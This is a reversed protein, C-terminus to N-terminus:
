YEDDGLDGQYSNIYIVINQEMPDKDLDIKTAYKPEQGIVTGYPKNPNSKEQVQIKHYAFGQRTLTAIATELTMGELNPVEYLAIEITVEEEASIKAGYSPKQGTVTGPVKGSENSGVVKINQYLFGAKLLEMKATDKDKGMLNPMRVEKPGLSITIEIVTNYAAREGAAVSQKCIMGREYQDNYEKGAIKVQFKELSTEEDLQTYYKGKIDPVEYLPGSPESSEKSSDEPESSEESSVASSTEEAKKGGKKFVTLTLAGIIILFILATSLASVIAYKAASGKKKPSKASTQETRPSAVSAKASATNKAATEAYVLENKFTEVNATRKAPDIQLGNALAHLVHRPLEEVFKAPVSIADGAARETSTPPVKGILVCYLVASLAYVDTRSSLGSGRYQETAAFGDFLEARIGSNQKRLKEIDYGTIRLKGDRGVLLTEPSIGGHVVDEDNMGKITDILPLFLPRAQEWKLVGGNKALFERLTISPTYQEIAYATGNVEFVDKVAVLAPLSIGKLRRNIRSFELLSENYTYQSNPLSSVTYDPNRVAIQAPFFERITIPKEESRDWGLYTVGSGNTKKAQGIMYRDTLFYKVPLLQAANQLVADYGCVPCIRQGGNDHMCGPCLREIEVM